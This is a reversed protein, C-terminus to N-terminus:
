CVLLTDSMTGFGGKGKLVVVLRARNGGQPHPLRQMHQLPRAVMNYPIKFQSIKDSEVKDVDVPTGRNSPKRRTKIAVM